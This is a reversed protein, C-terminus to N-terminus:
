DAHPRTPPRLDLGPSRRFLAVLGDRGVHGSWLVLSPQPDLDRFRQVVVAREAARVPDFVRILTVRRGAYRGCSEVVRLMSSSSIWSPLGSQEIEHCIAASPSQPERVRPFGFM